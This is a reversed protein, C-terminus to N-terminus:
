HKKPMPRQHRGMLPQHGVLSYTLMPDSQDTDTGYHNNFIKFIVGAQTGQTELVPILQASELSMQGNIGTLSSGAVNHLSM